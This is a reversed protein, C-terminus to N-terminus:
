SKIMIMQVHKNTKHFNTSSVVLFISIKSRIKSKNEHIPQFANRNGIVRIKRASMAVPCSAATSFAGIM